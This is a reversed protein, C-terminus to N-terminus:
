DVVSVRVADGAGESAQGAPEAFREADDGGLAAARWVRAVAHQEYGLRIALRAQVERTLGHGDGQGARPQVAVRGGLAPQGAEGHEVPAAPAGGAWRGARGPSG